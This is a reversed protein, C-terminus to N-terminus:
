CSDAQPRAHWALAYGSKDVNGQNDHITIEAGYSNVTQNLATGFVLKRFQTYEIHNFSEDQHQLFAYLSPLTFCWREPEVIFHREQKLKELIHRDKRAALEFFSVLAQQTATGSPM